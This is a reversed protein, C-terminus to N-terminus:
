GNVDKLSGSSLSKGLSLELGWKHDSGHCDCIVQKERTEEYSDMSLLNLSHHAVCSLKQIGPGIINAGKYMPLNQSDNSYLIAVRSNQTFSNQM